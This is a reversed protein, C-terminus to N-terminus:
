HNPFYIRPPAGSYPFYNRPPAGTFIFVSVCCTEWQLHTTFYHTMLNFEEFKVTIKKVWLQCGLPQVEGTPITREDWFHQTPESNHAWGSTMGRPPTNGGWGEVSPEGRWENRDEQFTLVPGWGWGKLVQGQPGSEVGELWWEPSKGLPEEVVTRGRSRIRTCHRNGRLRKKYTSHRRGTPFLSSWSSMSKLFKWVPYKKLPTITTGPLLHTPLIVTLSLSVSIFFWNM